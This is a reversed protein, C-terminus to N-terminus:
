SPGTRRGYRAMFTEVAGDIVREIEADTIRERVNFVRRAFLDAKCLEVFQDAALHCDQVVLEGKAVAASLFAALRERALAPGSQYFTRGLEPFRDCEAVCIRFVQLGFDSLYLGTIRRAVDKLTAAVGQGTRALVMASEAHRLCETRAVELFLLRKDPFYSYLTAKSVGAAKAIADVSAGEFGERLFVDRAGAVVDDFKRGRRIERSLHTM